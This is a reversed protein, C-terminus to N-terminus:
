SDVICPTGPASYRPMTDNSRHFSGCVSLSTTYSPPLAILGCKDNHFCEDLIVKGSSLIETAPFSDGVGSRDLVELLCAHTQNQDIRVDLKPLHVVDDGTEHPNSTWHLIKGEPKYSGVFENLLINCTRTVRSIPRLDPPTYCLPRRLSESCPSPIALSCVVLMSVVFPSFMKAISPAVLLYLYLSFNCINQVETMATHYTRRQQASRKAIRSTAPQKSRERAAPYDNLM